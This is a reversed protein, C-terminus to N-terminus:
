HTADYAHVDRAAKLTLKSRGYCSFEMNKFFYIKHIHPGADFSAALAFFRPARWRSINKYASETPLPSHCRVRVTDAMGCDWPVAFRCCESPWQLAVLLGQTNLISYTSERDDIICIGPASTTPGGVLRYHHASTTCHQWASWVEALVRMVGEALALLFSNPYEM